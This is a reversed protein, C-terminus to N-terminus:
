GGIVFAMLCAPDRLPARVASIQGRYRRDNAGLVFGTVVPAGANSDLRAFIEPIGVDLSLRMDQRGDDPRLLPLQRRILTQFPSNFNLIKKNAALTFAPSPCAALLAHVLSLSSLKALEVNSEALWRTCTVRIASTLNAAGDHANAIEDILAGVTLKRERAHRRLATWFFRELRIGRRMGKSSVVRFEPALDLSGIKPWDDFETEATTM